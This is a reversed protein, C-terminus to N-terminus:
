SFTQYIKAGSEADIVFSSATLAEALRKEDERDGANAYLYKLAVSFSANGTGASKLIM